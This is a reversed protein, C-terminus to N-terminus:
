RGRYEYAGIDPWRGRVRGALDRRPARVGARRTSSSGRPPPRTARPTSTAPRRRRNFGRCAIGRLIVNSVATRAVSCVHHPDELLGIVNNALIRDDRRPVRRLGREDPDLRCLRRHPAEGHPDHQEDRSCGLCAIDLRPKRHDASGPRPLGARTPDTGLFVNNVITVHDVRWVLYVQAAGIRYVGFSNDELLLKRGSFLQILDQHGCRARNAWFCPLAREFRNGRVTLDFGFRGHLFDCGRCDHFWNDVIRIHRTPAQLHLCNARFPFRDGCHRFESSRIMVHSSGRVHIRAHFRTRRRHRARRPCRRAPLRLNRPARGHRGAHDDATRRLRAAHPLAAPERRTGRARRRNASAPGLPQPRGARRPLLPAALQITGGSDRLASM